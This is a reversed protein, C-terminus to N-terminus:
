GARQRQRQRQRQLQQQTEALHRRGVALARAANGSSAGTPAPVRLRALARTGLTAAAPCSHELGELFRALPLLQACLRRRGEDLLSAEGAAVVSSAAAQAM